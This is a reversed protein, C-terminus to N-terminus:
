DLKIQVREKKKRLRIMLIGNKFKAEVANTDVKVPLEIRKKFQNFETYRYHTSWRDWKIGRKTKAIIEVGEDTVYVEIDDKSAVFPLDVTIVIENEDESIETLPEMCREREDVSPGFFEDFFPDWSM